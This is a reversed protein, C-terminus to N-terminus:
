KNAWLPNKRQRIPITEVIPQAGWQITHVAGAIPSRYIYGKTPLYNNERFDYVGWPDIFHWFAAISKGRYLFSPIPMAVGFHLHPYSLSTDIGGLLEGRDVRGNQLHPVTSLDMHQYVTRFDVGKSTTHLLIICGNNKKEVLGEASARM